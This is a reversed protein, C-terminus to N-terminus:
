YGYLADLIKELFEIRDRDDANAATRDGRYPDAMRAELEEIREKIEKEM